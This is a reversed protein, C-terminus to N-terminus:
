FAQTVPLIALSAFNITELDRALSPRSFEGRNELGEAETSCLWHVIRQFYAWRGLKHILFCSWRWANQLPPLTTCRISGTKSKNRMMQLRRQGVVCYARLYIRRIVHHSLSTIRLYLTILPTGSAILADLKWQIHLYWVDPFCVAPSLLAYQSPLFMETDKWDFM